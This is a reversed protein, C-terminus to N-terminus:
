YRTPNFRYSNGSAPTFSESTNNGPLKGREKAANWRAQAERDSKLAEQQSIEALRNRRANEANIVAIREEIARDIAARREEVEWRARMNALVLMAVALVALFVIAQFFKKM